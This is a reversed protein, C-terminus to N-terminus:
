NLLVQLQPWAVVLSVANMMTLETDVFTTDKAYSSAGIKQSM